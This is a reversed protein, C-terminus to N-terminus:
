TKPELEPIVQDLDITAVYPHFGHTRQKQYIDRRREWQDPETYDLTYIELGPNKKKLTKLLEVTRHYEQPDQFTYQKKEFDYRTYIVEALVMDITQALDPLIEFGRNMMIKFDPYHYRIARVLSIAAKKMGKYTKPDQEELFIANDLTDMFVGDFRQHILNPILVEIVMKTWRLDRIDIFYSGEWNKNEQLLLRQEKLTQFYPRNKEVEGLSLYGLLTKNKQKLPLLPPHEAGDFVCLAYPDFAEIPVQNSYYCVWPISRQKSALTNKSLPTNRANPGKHTDQANGQAVGLLVM